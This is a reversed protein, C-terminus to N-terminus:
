SGLSWRGATGLLIAVVAFVAYAAHFRPSSSHRAILLVGTALVVVGLVTATGPGDDAVGLVRKLLADGFSLWLALIELGFFSGRNRFYIERFDTTADDAPFLVVCQLYRVVALILIYLFAFLNWQPLDRLAWTFWWFVILSYFVNWTWLLHVWYPTWKGRADIFRAVGRLLHVIGLGAIVAVVVSVYEFQSL